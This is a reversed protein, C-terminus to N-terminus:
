SITPYLKSFDLLNQGSTIAFHEFKRKLGLMRVAACAAGFGNDINVVSVGSACSTLM